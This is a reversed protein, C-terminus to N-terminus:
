NQGREGCKAMAEDLLRKISAADKPFGARIWRAQLDKLIAGIERGASVGRALVDAGSFPQKPETENLVFRLATLWDDQRAAGRSEAFALIVADACASRGELYIKARLEDEAPPGERGHLPVLARSAAALRERERNALRLKVQLRDADETVLVCLAALRLIADPAAGLSGEVAITKALRAPYGVGGSLNQLLGMESILAATESARAGTLLKMVEARVRERSLQDLGDREALIAAIAEPDPEGEGFQSHFRLFRLSRLFDERIRTRPDGIFRLRRALLDPVGGVYDFLRGDSRVSLANITFDRRLADQEFSRGFRVTARRGDTTVDERLTTVEFPSGDVLVTVTGHEIGIPLTRFGSAAARAEVVGPLATTAFDIERACVGLLADRPAGGVVRVEEGGRDLLEFITRVRADNLFQAGALRGDVLQAACSPDSSM